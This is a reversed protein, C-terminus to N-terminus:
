YVRLAPDGLLNYIYIHYPAKGKLSYEYFANNIAKGLITEGNRYLSIYFESNLLQAEKNESLGSATWVATAGGNPQLVLLEALPDFSPFIFEGAVCTMATIIPAGGDTSLTDVDSSRLLGYQSFRDTGGHGVYNVLAAGERLEDFLKQRAADLPYESLYIKEMSYQKPILRSIRNSDSDFSANEDPMGALLLFKNKWSGSLYEYDKIKAIINQLEEASLVPLRGIAMDPVTDDDVDALYTDSAFLGDPTTVFTTPMLNGGHGQLDKYDYSADGVLVVFQPAQLWEYYAFKLFKKIAMPSYLGDNFENIIQELEVVKVSYGQRSRYDALEQAAETLEAPSIMLYDARNQRSKLGSSSYPTINDEAQLVSPTSALYVTDPSNPSFSLRYGTSSNKIRANPVRKPNFPDTIDLLHLDKSDFDSINVTSKPIGQVQISNDVAKFYRHYRVDFSDVYFLSFGAGGILIGQVELTNDGEQLLQQSFDLECPLLDIGQWTCDGISIGNLLVDVLHDDGSGDISGGVLHLTLTALESTPVVGNAQFTFSLIDLGAYGSYAYDWIWYDESSDWPQSLIPWQDEEIHVTDLFSQDEIFRRPKKHRAKKMKQGAELSLWFVNNDTYVDSYAFGYFYIGKKNDDIFYPISQGQSSLKLGYERILSRVERKSRSFQEAITAADLYYLASEKISIKLSDTDSDDRNFKPWRGRRVRKDSIDRRLAQRSIASPLVERVQRVLEESLDAEADPPNLDSKVKFPGYELREGTEVVEELLYSYRKGPVAADDYFQYTGGQPSGILAPILQKNVLEYMFQKRSKRFLYFGVTGNEYATEWRLLMRGYDNFAEFSSIGVPTLVPGGPAFLASGSVPYTWDSPDDTDYGDSIRSIAEGYDIASPNNLIDFFDDDQWIAQAVAPSDDGLFDISPAITYSWGIYDQIVPTASDDYLLLQDAREDTPSDSDDPDGFQDTYGAGADAFLYNADDGSDYYNLSSRDTDYLIVYASEGPSLTFTGLGTEDPAEPFTYTFGDGDTVTYGAIDIDSGSANYVQFYETEADTPDTSPYFFVENIIIPPAKYTATDTKDDNSSDSDGDNSGNAAVSDEYTVTLTQDHNLEIFGDESTYGVDSDYTTATLLDEIAFTIGTRDNNLNVNLTLETGGPDIATITYTGADPGSLIEFPDGVSLSTFDSSASSVVASGDTTVLDTLRNIHAGNTFVGSGSSTEYLTVTETDGNPSTVVVDVSSSGTNNADEVRIFVTQGTVYLDVDATGTSNTFYVRGAGNVYFLSATTTYFTGSSAPYEFSATVEGEDIDEWLGDNATITGDSVQTDLGTTNRFIGTDPGTETLTITTEEDGASGTLKVQITEATGSDTNSAPHTVTVYLKDSTSSDDTLQFDTAPLGTARTFEIFPEGDGVINTQTTYTDASPTTYSFQITDGSAVELSGSNDSDNPTGDDPVSPLPDAPYTSFSIKDGSTPSVDYLTFTVEGNDSTYETGPTATSSQEVFGGGGGDDKYVHWNGDAEYRVEWDATDTDKSTSVYPIWGNAADTSSPSDAGGNNTFLGSNPGSEYLTLQEDDGTRPNTVTVIISDVSSSTNGGPYKVYTYINDGVTYFSVEELSADVFELKPEGNLIVVDGFTIPDATTLFDLDMMFDKQLPDTNSNSTSYVFGVPSDPYVVQNGNEDNFATLPVQIDIWYDGSGDGVAVVRTHNNPYTTLDDYHRAEFEEVQAAVDDTILQTNDNNYLIRVRDAKDGGSEYSGQLDVWYEKYGDDDIDFLINWHASTFGGAQSPDGAVRIRFFLYDDEMTSPDLPDYATGGDYYGYTPTDAPGPSAGLSGSALDVSGTPAAGGTSPDSSTEHDSIPQGLHTYPATYGASIFLSWDIALDTLAGNAPFSYLFISICSLLFTSIHLKLKYKCREDLKIHKSSSTQIM